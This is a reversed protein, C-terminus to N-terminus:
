SSQYVVLVDVSRRALSQADVVRVVLTKDGIADLYRRLFINVLGDGCSASCEFAFPGFPRGLLAACRHDLECIQGIFVSFFKSKPLCLTHAL